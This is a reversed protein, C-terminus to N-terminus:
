SNSSRANRLGANSFYSKVEPFENGRVINRGLIFIKHPQFPSILLLQVKLPPHLLILMCRSTSVSVIEEARLVVAYLIVICPKLNIPLVDPEDITILSIAPLRM